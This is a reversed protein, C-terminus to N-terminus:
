YISNLIFCTGNCTFSTTINTKPSSNVLRDGAAMRVTVVVASSFLPIPEPAPADNRSAIAAALGPSVMWNLTVPVILKIRPSNFMELFRVMEPGPACRKLTDPFLEKRTKVSAFETVAVM